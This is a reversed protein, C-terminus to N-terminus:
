GYLHTDLYQISTYGRSPRYSADRWMSMTDLQCKVCLRLQWVETRTHQETLIDVLVPNDFHVKHWPTNVACPTVKARHNSIQGGAEM